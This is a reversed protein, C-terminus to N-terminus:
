GPLRRNAHCLYNVDVNGGLSYRNLLPNFHMGTIDTLELASQRCWRALEAPRILRGYEHTGKPLMGMVYEAAVIALLFSKPNRNITSFFVHGGLCAAQACAQVTRSPEPVHELLELCTVIDFEGADARLLENISACEYRISLGQAAAHERAVAINAEALDIGTVHAGAMALAESLIGAGCGVDLVTTGALPAIAEIYAVRLANIAHLTALPGEPDWWSRALAAFKAIEAADFDETAQTM